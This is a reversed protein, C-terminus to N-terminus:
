DSENKSRWLPFEGGKVKRFVRYLTATGVSTRREGRVRAYSKKLATKVM